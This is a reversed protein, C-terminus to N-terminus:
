QFYDDDHKDNIKTYETLFIVSNMVYYNNINEKSLNISLFLLYLNNLDSACKKKNNVHITKLNFLLFKNYLQKKLVQNVVKEIQM